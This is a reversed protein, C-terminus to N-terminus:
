KARKVTNFIKNIEDAHKKEGEIGAWYLVVLAKDKSIAYFTLGVKCPGDEDEGTWEIDSAEMGNIKADTKKETSKDIKVKNKKLYGIAELVAGEISDSDHIEASVQIEEDDSDATISDDEAEVTWSAPFSIVILPEEKPLKYNKANATIAFAALFTAILLNKM